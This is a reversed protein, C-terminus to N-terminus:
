VPQNISPPPTQNKVYTEIKINSFKIEQKKEPVIPTKVVPAEKVKPETKVQVQTEEAVKEKIETQEKTESQEQKLEPQDKFSGSNKQQQFARKYNIFFVRLM